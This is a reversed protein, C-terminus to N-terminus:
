SLQWKAENSFWSAVVSINEIVETETRGDVVYGALFLGSKVGGQFRQGVVGCYQAERVCDPEHGIPLHELIGNLPPILVGGGPKYFPTGFTRPLGCEAYLWEKDLNIGFSHSIINSIVAGGTRSAIECFVLQGDNRKWLEAHFAMHEPSPLSMLVIRTAEVLPKYMPDSLSLTCTGSYKNERFSLCDNIYQSPHIFVIERDIILGDIHYMKGDIFTEIEMNGSKKQALYSNLEEENRVINIGLSGSESYPKIVVPYGYKEIFQIATYASDLRQYNPLFVGANGLFDKMIVKNRYALASAIKQGRLNLLERLQAARIIDAEARAFIAILNYHRAIEFAKKEILGNHDYNSFAYVYPMHKYGVALEDSTLIIPEIGTDSLWEDYPTKAYVTKAFILVYQNRM